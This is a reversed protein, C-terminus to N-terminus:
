AFYAMYHCGSNGSHHLEVHKCIIKSLQYKSPSIVYKTQEVSQRDTNLSDGEENPFLMYEGLSHELFIPILHNKIVNWETITRLFKRNQKQIDYRVIKKLDKLCDFSEKDFIYETKLDSKEGTTKYKGLGSCISLLLSSSSASSAPTSTSVSSFTSHVAM